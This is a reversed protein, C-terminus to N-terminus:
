ARPPARHLFFRLVRQQDNEREVPLAASPRQASRLHLEARALVASRRPDVEIDIMRLRRLEERLLAREGLVQAFREERRLRPRARMVLPLPEEEDHAPDVQVGAFFGVVHNGQAEPELRPEHDARATLADDRRAVDLRQERLPLPRPVDALEEDGDQLDQDPADALEHVQELLFAVVHLLAHERAPPRLQAGREGRHTPLHHRQTAV